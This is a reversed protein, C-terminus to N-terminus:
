DKPKNEEIWKELDGVNQNVFEKWNKASSLGKKELAKIYWEEYGIFIMEYFDPFQADKFWMEDIKEIIEKFPLNWKLITKDTTWENGIYIVKLDLLKAIIFLSKEKIQKEEKNQKLLSTIAWLYEIYFPCLLDIYSDSFPNIKKM